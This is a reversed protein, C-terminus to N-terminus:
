VWFEKPIDEEGYGYKILTLKETKPNLCYMGEDYTKVWV